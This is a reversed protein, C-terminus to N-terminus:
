FDVTVVDGPQPISVSRFGLEQELATQFKLQQDEDGHVLYTAQLREADFQAHYRLLETRDAHASLSNMTVVQARLAHAEGFINVTPHKEVIRRGLTHEASFGTILVTNRPDEITNSLHHLIRGAECMGSASIIMMPGDKANLEKSEIVSQVYRLNEFGFPDHHMMIEERIDPDMCNPHNRYIQTANLSLPSDVYIPMDPLLERDRLMHLDYVLEQTRGVAFAPVVVKGKRGAAEALTRHLIQLTAEKDMHVRGGYTSESILVDVHGCFEPDRIIPRDWRGLDGTYCLRWEKGPKKVTVLVIASGLIHGADFFTVSIEDTIRLPRGYGTTQFLDLTAFVDDTGYLPEVPPLGSKAHLKSVYEADKRQVYASDLLMLNALDRTAHTCYVPGSYGQKVLLPLKGTHDIHAHSLVVADVTSPSFSFSLNKEYAESRRGQFLGCDLLLTFDDIRLLHASGTVTKAAGHFELQIM